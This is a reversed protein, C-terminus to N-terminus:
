LKVQEEVLLAMDYFMDHLEQIHLLYYFNQVFQHTLIYSCVRINAELKIIELHRAEVEGLAARKQATELM